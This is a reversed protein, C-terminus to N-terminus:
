LCLSEPEIMKNQSIEFNNIAKTLDVAISHKGDVGPIDNLGGFILSFAEVDEGFKTLVVAGSDGPKSFRGDEDEPEIIFVKLEPESDKSMLVFNTNRVYGITKSTSAGFKYVKRKNLVSIDRNFLAVNGNEKQQIQFSCNKRIKVVSFDQV